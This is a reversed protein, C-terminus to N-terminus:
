YGQSIVCKNIVNLITEAAKESPLMDAPRLKQLAQHAENIQQQMQQPHQMLDLVRPYINKEHCRYLVYEPIVEKGLLINILNAFQKYHKSVFWYAFFNSIRNFKYAIIHPTNCATLELSVTGSAAIAFVSAKFTQYREQQGVVVCHPAPMDAFDNRVKEAIAEVSPIVVFLDPYHNALQAVTKKFVPILRKIESQRSGPLVCLLTCQEPIGHRQKFAATEFTINATNEIVPHGVFDCHLGYKEFYPAEHPLLTMLGDFLQAATKARGKKWIWVQPAVYHIKPVDIKNKKLSNLLQHVFGWSDVTLLVDPQVRQIDAVVQKLRKLILPLRPLVEAIGMVSIDSIDFLSKFGIATMTEGGMGFFQVDPLKQRLALMLRSALIDGSAEGTVIYVKKAL